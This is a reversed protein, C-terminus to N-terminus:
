STHSVRQGSPSSPSPFPSPGDIRRQTGAAAAADERVVRSVVGGKRLRYTISRWSLRSGFASAVMASWNVALVIPNAWIDFRSAANLGPFQDPFYQRALDRRLLGRHANVAYLTVVGAAPIWAWNAGTAFGVCALAAGGWVAWTAATIALLGLYWWLPTYFRGIIYQRRVFRFMQVFSNDLPSALMCAPEFVVRERTKALQRSAILDDSLTRQWAPLLGIRRMADRRVAWSGGWVLRRKGPGILAGAASNISYLLSNALSTRQPIFWRYGTASAVEERDLRQVLMRLWHSQPRADSDVFAVIEVEPSLQGAAVLLNHVKQGTDTARGAVLMRVGVGGREAIL